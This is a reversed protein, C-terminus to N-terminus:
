RKEDCKKDKDNSDRDDENDKDHEDKNNGIGILKV